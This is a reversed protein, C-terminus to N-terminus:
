TSKGSERLTSRVHRLCFELRQELERLLNRQGAGSLNCMEAALRREVGERPLVADASRLMMKRKLPAKM